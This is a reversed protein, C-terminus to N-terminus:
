DIKPEEAVVEIWTNGPRLALEAGDPGYFRTRSRDDPKRWTAAMMRGGTYLEAKGQGVNEILVHGSSDVLSMAAHVVVVNAASLQRRTAGDRHPDGYMFRLYVGASADWKWAAVETSIGGFRVEFDLGPAFRADNGASADFRWEGFAPARGYGRVTAVSRLTTTNARVNHPASRVPDRDFAEPSPNPGGEMDLDAIGWDRIQSGSDAPGASEARGVHAYVADFELAWHLFPTRASRIPEVLDAEHSEYVALFRTIGGEVLAEIVVDARDLGVQPYAAENNDVMVAIPRSRAIGVAGPPLPLGTLAFARRPEATATPRPLTTTAQPTVATPAGPVSATAGDRDLVTIKLVALSALAGVLM